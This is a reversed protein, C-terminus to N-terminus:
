GKGLPVAVFRTNQGSKVRMLVTKKGGTQAETLAKRVDAPSTVTAGGVDLIVDGTKLRDGAVGDPDVQTVVVGDSGGGAVSGAPALTLGLRPVKADAGGRGSRENEGDGRSAVREKPLEGLTMSMTETKGNRFVDLKVTTGPAMTGITRALTRADKVPEGNVATIVDGAKIGAKAAPSGGQPEAVLAGQDTKLGLSDAIEANVPQIQVGIWGRSVQGKDKLQAVVTRVTEAPIAFAIGVSGGSPSFIATNVGIVNGDMDFSPGGSNGRNVPADIQLFDDYPGAGIDRGRASVIGATVTGGLGFPNGVALVWDGIRPAKDGLAVAPFDSRGDIKILALDTRPDTGIVKATYTKGDDTTVQVSEAKDVVHNNTVAYGDPTIFFGSGQGTSFQRKRQRQQDPMGEPGQGQGQGQGFRRFFFEFPSGPAFPDDEGRTGIRPRDNSVQVKVSIVAPKVKDVIDAFGAPRQANQAYAPTLLASHGAPGFEPNMFLVGTGLAGVTALLALRRASVISRAKQKLNQTDIM